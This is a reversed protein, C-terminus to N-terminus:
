EHDDTLRLWAQDRAALLADRQEPSLGQTRALVRQKAVARTDAPGAATLLAREGLETLRLLLLGRSGALDPFRTAALDLRRAIEPTETVTLRHHRTPVDLTYCRLHQVKAAGSSVYNTGGLPGLKSRSATGAMLEDTRGAPSGRGSSGM